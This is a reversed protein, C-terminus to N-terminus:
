SHVIGRDAAATRLLCDKLRIVTSLEEKTGSVSEVSHTRLIFREKNDRDEQRDLLVLVDTLLLAHLETLTCPPPYLSPIDTHQLFTIWIM